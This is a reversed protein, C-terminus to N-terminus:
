SEIHSLSTSNTSSGNNGWNFNVCFFKLPLKTITAEESLM